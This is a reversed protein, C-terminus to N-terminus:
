GSFREHQKRALRRSLALLAVCLAAVIGAITLALQLVNVKSPPNKDDDPEHIEYTAPIEGM